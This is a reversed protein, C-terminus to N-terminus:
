KDLSNGNETLYIIYKLQTLEAATFTRESYMPNRVTIDGKSIITSIDVIGSENTKLITSPENKSFVEVDSIPQMSNQDLIELSQSNAKAIFLM